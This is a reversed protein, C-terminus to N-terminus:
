LLGQGEGTDAGFIRIREGRITFRVTLIGEGVRGFALYRPEHGSHSTDEALVLNPDDFVRAALRFSVGHKVENDRAKRQDWEFTV